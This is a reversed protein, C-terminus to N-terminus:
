HSQISTVLLDRQVSCSFGFVLHSYLIAQHCILGRPYHPLAQLLLGLLLSQHFWSSQASLGGLLGDMRNAVETTSICSPMIFGRTGIHNNLREGSLSVICLPVLTPDPHVSFASETM